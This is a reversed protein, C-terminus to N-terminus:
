EPSESSTAGTALTQPDHGAVIARIIAMGTAGTIDSVVQHLQVNIETLAKQIRQIHMCASRVLNDRQRIYRDASVFRTKPAFPRQYALLCRIQM